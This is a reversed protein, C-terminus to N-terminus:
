HTKAWHFPVFNPLATTFALLLLGNGNILGCYGVLKNGCPYKSLLRFTMDVYSHDGGPKHYNGHLCSSFSIPIPNEESEEAVQQSADTLLSSKTSKCKDIFVAYISRYLNSHLGIIASVESLVLYINTPLECLIHM